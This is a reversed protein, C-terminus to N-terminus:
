GLKEIVEEIMGRFGHSGLFAIVDGKVRGVTLFEVLAEDDEMYHVEKHNEAITAGLEEGYFTKEPNAVDVKVSSLRPIVVTDAADFAHAYEPKSQPTRNGINPEYVAIILGPYITRLTALVSRAKEPSHAIDDIVTVGHKSKEGDLRKELRRKMGMFTKIAAVIKEPEIGAKHAMAFCGTINEANYAGLLQSEIAFTKSGSGKGGVVIDFTLGDPSVKVNEYRYNAKDDKGYSTFKRKAGKLLKPLTETDICATILGDAPVLAILKKFADFYEAETPYLDAHDWKVATLLLHKPKYHFFKARKDWKATSYEDGEIVSWEGTDIAAAPTGDQVLGGTMYSPKMGASKFIHALLASSTTKGYTGCVVISEPKSIYEGVAEAFAMFPIKNEKVYLLEPNKTSVANGVIVLDPTGNGAAGGGHEASCMKEPHWGSYYPIGLKTLHTSIPPFFGVDSGAVDWGKEHMATAVASLAVGCIGIFHVKKPQIQKNTKIKVMFLKIKLGKQPYEYKVFPNFIIYYTAFTFPTPPFLKKFYILWVFSKHLRLLCM